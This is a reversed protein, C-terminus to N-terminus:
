VDVRNRCSIRSAIVCSDNQLNLFNCNIYSNSVVLASRWGTYIWMFTYLTDRYNNNFHSMLPVFTRKYANGRPDRTNGLDGYDRTRM